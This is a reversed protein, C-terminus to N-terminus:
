TRIFRLIRSGDLRVTYVGPALGAVAINLQPSGAPLLLGLVRKGTGDCIEVPRDRDTAATILLTTTETVTPVLLAGEDRVREAIGTTLAGIFTTLLGLSDMGTAVVENAGTNVSSPIAQWFTNAQLVHLVQDAENVGNLQAPDYAFAVTADLGINVDASWRFWRATSEAGGPETIPTHGRELTVTGPAVVTSVTLGLGGPESGFLPAAYGRQIRETGSGAIPAGLAEQLTANPALEILGDNVCTSGAQFQWQVPSLLRVTTGNMVELTTGPLVAMTQAQSSGSLGALVLAPVLPALRM